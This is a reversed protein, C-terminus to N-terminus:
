AAWFACFALLAALRKWCPSAAYRCPFLVAASRYQAAATAAPGPVGPASCACSRMLRRLLVVVGYQFHKRRRYRTELLPSQLLARVCCPDWQRGEDTRLIQKVVDPALGKRYPRDMTMASYSDAVALIRAFFPIQEGKLGEPYGNGDWREHHFHVADVTEALDPVSGVLLAGMAAHQKVAEYEAELLRGPLRLIRDPTGIKGVDHLLAAVQILRQDSEPLDLERAIAVSYRLVDESHRRTYRDKNDVATVLADLMAFGDLTQMLEDRLNKTLYEQSGVKDRRLREDAAELLELTSMGDESSLAFGCSITLPIPIEYEPPYYGISEMHQRLREIMEVAGDHTRGPLLLGFEDGGLRALADEKEQCGARLAGAVQRLVQDGALHGYAENFFKFNDLDIVIVAVPIGTERSLATEQALREHFARHNLLNTLSDRDARDLAQALIREREARHLSEVLLREREAEILKRETTERQVAIWHTFWGNEDAVPQVNLEVWFSSGDKRYNILEARFGEWAKLKERIFRRTEPSTEPGQLIRPTKGLIEEPTYGTMRTFADNVYVVRPGHPDDISNAETILVVDNTNVVVSELLRLREVDSQHMTSVGGIIRSGLVNKRHDMQESDVENIESSSMVGLSFETSERYGTIAM